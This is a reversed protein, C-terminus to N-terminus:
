PVQGGPARDNGFSPQSNVQPTSRLNSSISPIAGLEESKTSAQMKAAALAIQRNREANKRREARTIKRREAADKRVAAVKDVKARSVVAQGDSSGAVFAQVMERRETLMSRSENTAVASLREIPGWSSGVRVGIAFGASLAIVVTAIGACYSGLASVKFM